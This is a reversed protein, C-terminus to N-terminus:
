GSGDEKMMMDKKKQRPACTKGDTVTPWQQAKRGDDAPWCFINLIPDGKKKKAVM